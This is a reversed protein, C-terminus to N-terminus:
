PTLKLAAFLEALPIPVALAVTIIGGDCATLTETDPDLKMGGFVTGMVAETVLPPVGAEPALTVNVSLNGFPLVVVCVAAVPVLPVAM